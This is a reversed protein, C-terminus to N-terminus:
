LEAAHLKQWAMMVTEPKWKAQAAVALLLPENSVVYDVLGHKFDTRQVAGRLAGPSLGSQVMFEALQDPNEVLQALCAEALEDLNPIPSKLAM